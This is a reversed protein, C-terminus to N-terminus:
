AEFAGAVARLEDFVAPAAAVIHENQLPIPAGGDYRSVRGGAETVLLIGAAFDWPKLNHELYGEVRGAAVYALDLAASGTRRIDECRDFIARFAAFNASTFQRDYPSTGIAVVSRALGPAASAHIPRGNCRAGGGKVATFMEDLFPNYVLALVSEGTEVLALSVASHGFHHMLNATGDVPDLVFVRGAPDPAACGEEEGLFQVDPWRRALEAQLFHQVGTDCRTVFNARGKVTVDALATEDCLIERTRRLLGELEACMQGLM